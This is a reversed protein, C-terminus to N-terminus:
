KLLLSVVSGVGILGSVAKLLNLSPKIEGVHRGPKLVLNQLTKSYPLLVTTLFMLTIAILSVVGFNGQAHGYILLANWLLIAALLFSWRVPFGKRLPSAEAIGSPIFGDHNLKLTLEEAGGKYNLSIKKPYNLVNHILLVNAGYLGKNPEFRIIDSPAFSYTGFFPIKLVLQNPTVSLKIGPFNSRVGGIRVSSISTEM